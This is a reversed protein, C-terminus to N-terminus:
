RRRRMEVVRNDSGLPRPQALNITLHLAVDPGSRAGLDVVDFDENTRACFTRGGACLIRPSWAPFAGPVPSRRRVDDDPTAGTEAIQEPGTVVSRHGLVSPPDM